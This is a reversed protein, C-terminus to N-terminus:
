CARDLEAGNNECIVTYRFRRVASNMVKARGGIKM